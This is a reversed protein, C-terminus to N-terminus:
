LGIFYVKASILEVGKGFVKGLLKTPKMTKGSATASGFMLHCHDIIRYLRVLLGDSESSQLDKAGNEMLYEEIERAQLTPYILYVM